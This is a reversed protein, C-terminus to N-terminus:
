TQKSITIMTGGMQQVEAGEQVNGAPSRSGRQGGDGAAAGAALEVPPSHSLRM